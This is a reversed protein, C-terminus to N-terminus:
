ILIPDVDVMIRLGKRDGLDKILGQAYAHLRVKSQSKLLIKWTNIGRRVDRVPGIVEIKDATGSLADALDRSMDAKSTIIALIIHSFPPYFLAKRRRLEERYFDTHSYKRISKFVYNDPMGTQIILLGDPRVYESLNFLEQFLLEGSRFDPINLNIDPNLFTCLKFAGKRPLRGTIIKTGVIVRDERITDTLARLQSDSRLVDRDLRLPEVDLYRKIDSAIRQTGAGITELRCGGCRRCTDSMDSEYGCYHCKMIRRDKYYILPVSCEPCAEIYDCEKCQIMSYGKRNILFIAGEGEKICSAADVARKSLYPAIRKTTKMNIVEVRPRKVSADSKLMIYKANLTNYFSEVSPTTSSLVVTARDLYGRKVAVDRGNYRLGELNKYSRNHEQLVWILFVSKLPAFVAPRTGLVIDSDGSIIRHLTDRKRAKSLRGHLVALREGLIGQMIPSLQEMHSMEPVLIIANRVVNLIDLLYSIEYDASPAHLLYTRYGGKNISERITSAIEHSARLDADTYGSIPRSNIGPQLRDHTKRNGKMGTKEFVEVPFMSKLALGETVLYYGAMWRLLSLMSLSIIPEDFSVGLVTKLAAEYQHSARGIVIGHRISRKIEARVLMGPRIPGNYALPRRYTLPGINLPFVVDFYEMHFKLMFVPYFLGAYYRSETRGVM